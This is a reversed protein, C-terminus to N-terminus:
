QRPRYAGAIDGRRYVGEFHIKEVERYARDRAEGLDAGMGVVGLVRGGATRVEEGDRVTGAQFVLGEVDDLGTIPLGKPYTGPYGESALVVCVAAEESWELEIEGLKGEVTAWLVEFLDTKMRPLVVQTEPDGLRANFEVLRPGEETIMLGAFLVGRFPRGEQVMARAAPEIIERVAQELVSREIEPVPSYTGMGGTNPGRDGDLLPKHDRAEVMPRVLEGDVFSLISVEVGEMFEEVILRAGAEGYAREVMIKEVGELAEERSRAVIVGKGAALGDAKLVVPIPGAEVYARAAEPDDFIAFKATPIGYKACLEKMFIKSGEIRAAARRPGFVKLGMAELHDVIGEALPDDPGVVVLDVKERVAFEGIAEFEMVGLPVVEALSAIGGNGPACFIKTVRESKSLAWVLAHERGGSGVVLVRM